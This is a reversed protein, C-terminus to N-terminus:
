RTGPVGLMSKLSLSAYAPERRWLALLAEGGLVRDGGLVLVERGLQEVEGYTGCERM